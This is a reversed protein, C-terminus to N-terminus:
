PLKGCCSLRMDGVAILGVVLMDRMDEYERMLGNRRRV